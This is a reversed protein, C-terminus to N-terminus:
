KKAEALIKGNLRVYEDNKMEQAAKIGAEATEAAGKKDGAKLQIQAKWYKIWPAKQDAAEAANVWELAKNLDKGNEFYYQAAQFYPKREGKMAEEINAMVKADIETTMNIVVDTRDWILHMKASTPFVDSFGITFTEAKSATKGPKVKFRLADDSEKYEYAGWQATVKNFIITWSDKGPITFLAYAGKPLANGELKVDESFAIVTASNAGTRWVQGYPALDAFVHRGKVNPRSYKVEVKGLGFDQVITQTSSAQPMKLGQASTEFGAVALLLVAPILRM